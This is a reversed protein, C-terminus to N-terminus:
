AQGRAKRRAALWDHVTALLGGAGAGLAIGIGAGGGVLTDRITKAVEPSYDDPKSGFDTRALEMHKAAGLGIGAGSAGGLMGGILMGKVAGAQKLLEKYKM